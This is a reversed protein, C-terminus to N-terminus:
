RADAIRRAEEYRAKTMGKKELEAIFRDGPKRGGRNKIDNHMDIAWQSRAYAPINPKAIKDPRYPEVGADKMAKTYDRESYFMQNGLERNRHPTFRPTKM